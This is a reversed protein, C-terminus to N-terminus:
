SAREFAVVHGLAAARDQRDCSAPLRAGPHAPARGIGPFAVANRPDVESFQRDHINWELLLSLPAPNRSKELTLHFVPHGISGKLMAGDALRRKSAPAPEVLFRFEASSAEEQGGHRLLLLPRHAAKARLSLRRSETLGFQSRNGRIELITAALAGSSLATEVLWLADELRRPLGHLVDGPGLGFQALGPAHAAGMDNRAVADGIWLVPADDGSAEKLHAALAAAFGSAAGADAMRATRMETIGDIPLGGGLAQDLRTVGFGLRDPRDDPDIPLPAPKSMALHVRAAAEAQQLAAATALPKGELRAIEERLSFITEQAKANGAM